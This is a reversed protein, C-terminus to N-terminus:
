QKPLLAELAELRKLIEDDVTNKTRPAIVKLAVVAGAVLAGAVALLLTLNM